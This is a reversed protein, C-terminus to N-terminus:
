CQAVLEDKSQLKVLATHMEALQQQKLDRIEAIQQKVENLLM